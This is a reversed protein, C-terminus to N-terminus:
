QSKGLQFKVDILIGRGPWWGCCLSSRLPQPFCEWGLVCGLIERDHKVEDPLTVVDGLKTETALHIQGNKLQLVGHKWVDYCLTDLEKKCTAFALVTILTKIGIKKPIPIFAKGFARELQHIISGLVVSQAVASQARETTNLSKTCQIGGLFDCNIKKKSSLKL